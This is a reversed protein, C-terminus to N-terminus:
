KQRTFNYLLPRRLSFQEIKILLILPSKVLHLIKKDPAPTLIIEKTSNNFCVQFIKNNCFHCHHILYSNQQSETQYIETCNYIVCSNTCFSQILLPLKCKCIYIQLKLYELYKNPYHYYSSITSHPCFRTFPHSFVPLYSLCKFFRSLLTLPRESSFQLVLIFFLAEKLNASM